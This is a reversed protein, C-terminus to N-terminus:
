WTGYTGYDRCAKVAALTCGPNTITPTECTTGLICGRPSDRAGLLQKKSAEYAWAFNPEIMKKGDITTLLTMRNGFEKKLLDGPFENDGHYGIHIVTFPTTLVERWMPYDKSHDGCLHYWLQPGGGGALAKRVFDRQHNFSFEKVYKPPLVTTNALVSGIVMMNFGYKDATVSAGNASTYALSDLIKHAAKPQRIAWTIFKEPGVLEAAMSFLCFVNHMPLMMDPMNKQEYDFARWHLETTKCKDPGLDEKEFKPIKDADEPTKIPREGVAIWPLSNTVQLKVGYMELFVNSYFFHAVPLLDHLENFYAVCQVAIEPYEYFDKNTYGLLQCAHAMVIPDFDIRDKFVDVFPSAFRTVANTHWKKHSDVSHPVFMSPLKDIPVTPQYSM